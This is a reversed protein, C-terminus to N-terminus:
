FYHNSNHDFMLKSYNYLVFASGSSSFIVRSHGKFTVSSFDLLFSVWIIVPFANLKYYQSKNNVTNTSEFLIDNMHLNQNVLYFSVNTNDIFTSNEIFSYCYETSDTSSKLYIISSAGINSQFRSNIISLNIAYMDESSYYIVTGHGSYNTNNVFICNDIIVDGSIETLVVAQGLSHQFTCNKIMVNSTNEFTIAPVVLDNDNDSGCHEWVIGKITVNSCFTFYIGGNNGCDIVPNNHGAITLNTLNALEIVSSLEVNCTINLVHDSTLNELLYGFSDYSSGNFNEHPLPDPGSGANLIPMKM